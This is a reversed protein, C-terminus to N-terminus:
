QVWVTVGNGPTGNMYVVVPMQGTVTMIEPVQVNIQWLGAFGPALGSFVVRGEETGFFVRPQGHTESLPQGAAVGDEAAPSVVGSGTGFIQIVEGRRALAASGNLRFDQNLVAGPRDIAGPDAVFIGPGDGADVSGTAAESGNVVVRVEARGAATSAPAQFNVQTRTVVLLPAAVGNVLVEVGGLLKPLPLRSAETPMVTAGFDGFVAALAGPAVRGRYSAANVAIASGAAPRGGAATREPWALAAGLFPDARAFYDGAYSAVPLDPLLSPPDANPLLRFFQTSYQVQLQSNPLLFRLIEGYSNPKGGTAEGILAAGYRGALEIANLMASSATGRGILVVVRGRTDGLQDLVQYLPRIVSSDGGSNNRVDIILRESGAAQGAAFVQGIFDQFSLDAQNRCVNYALYMTKATPLYEYWYFLNRNRLWQPLFGRAADPASTLTAAGATVEIAFRVGDLREVVYRAVEPSAALDLGYLIEAMALLSASRERVWADNEHSIITAVRQYAQHVDVAGIQVVRAGLARSQGPATATVYLGDEFWRLAIPLPRFPLPFISTHSDGAMAVLGMLGTIVQADSLEPIRVELEGVARQFDEPRLQFYFNAHRRPLETALFQLDQRWREDRVVDGAWLPLVALLLALGRMVKGPISARDCRFTRSYPNGTIEM